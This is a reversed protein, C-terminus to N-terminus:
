GNLPAGDSHQLYLRAKRASESAFPRMARPSAISINRSTEWDFVIHDTTYEPALPEISTTAPLLYSLIWENVMLSSLRMYPVAHETLPPGAKFARGALDIGARGTPAASM